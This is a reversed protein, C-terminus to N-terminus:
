FYGQPAYTRQVASMENFEIEVTKLEDQSVYELRLSVGFPPAASSAAAATGAAAAIPNAAAAPRAASSSAPHPAAPHSSGSAGSASPSSATGPTSSSATGGMTTHTANAATSSQTGGMTPHAAASSSSTTSHSATTSPIAVSSADAAAETTPSLSPAFWTSMIQDKFLNLAWQEQQQTSADNSLSVVQVNIVGDQRLPEFTADIGASAIYASAGFDVSFSNYARKM